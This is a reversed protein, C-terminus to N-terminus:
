TKVPLPDQSQTLSVPEAMVLLAQQATAVSRARVGAGALATTRAAAALTVRALLELDGPQDMQDAAVAVQVELIEQALAAAL